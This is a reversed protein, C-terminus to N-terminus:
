SISLKIDEEKITKRGAHKAMKKAKISIYSLKDILIQSLEIKAKESVRKATAKKLLKETTLTPIKKM